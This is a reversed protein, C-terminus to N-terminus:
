HPPLGTQLLADDLGSEQWLQHLRPTEMDVEMIWGGQKDEHERHVVGINFLQARLRGASAPLCLKHRLTKATVFQGIAEALYEIGEGTQASLWVRHQRGDCDSEIRAPIGQQKDIKNYVEIQPIDAAGIDCIVQNVQDMHAHRHEDNADVVHLLLDAELMEELTAHFANILDHPIHRIFGVTDTLIVSIGSAFEVRRLTPDLTAFLKDEAYVSAGTLYNFLTSKGANTYGVLSVVLISSKSRQKRSQQRQCRVKELRTNITKIRKGILRRDTELQTEGPGRLGIGGKQRELHTWGRILRTSLHQLQALEVQLKGEYSRARQAFIDLILGVRDVVRCQIERELNREQAPSIAHNFIVIDANHVEVADKIDAVKGSGIFFQPDPVDRSCTVTAVPLTGSSTTLEIFEDLDENYETTRFDINVLVARESDAPLESM